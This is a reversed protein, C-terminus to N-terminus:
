IDSPILVYNKKISSRYSSKGLIEIDESLLKFGPVEVLVNYDGPPLIIIYRGSVPNTMYSGYLEDTQKDLVSIFVDKISLSDATNITGKLVTYSPDVENFTVNYVDLDGFGNERLASVYGTRGTKSARFNMDDGPTNLPYGVNNVDGWNRKVPNWAAKFIDYGGMSTHGKSSFYLTKNGSTINPFDEDHITNITPGLNQPPAWKGNPLKRSSYIDFGGYGGDRNSSFYIVNGFKAISASIEHHKSNIVKPLKTLNKVKENEFDAIFLDGYHDKNEFYFLLHKGDGSLGVIEESGDLSNINQDLKKSPSYKGNKVKSIYIESHYDGNPLLSSGDDRKSNFLLFSEDIPVYPYYDTQKSNITSGVNKFSVDLPFKMLEIANYCYEIQKAVDELNAANGKNLRKFTRYMKIAEPFRYAFHYARGLLYSANPDTNAITLAKEFYPIADSKDINTNLYCVGIRYNYESNEPATVLLELYEDLADKFNEDNFRESAVNESPLEQAVLLQNFSVLWIFLGVTFIRM